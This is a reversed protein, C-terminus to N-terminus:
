PCRVPSLRLPLPAPTPDVGIDAFYSGVGTWRGGGASELSFSYGTYGGGLILDLSGSPALAWWSIPARAQRTGPEKVALRPGPDVFLPAPEDTLQILTPLTVDAAVPGGIQLGYCGLLARFVVTPDANNSTETVSSSCSVILTGLLVLPVRM